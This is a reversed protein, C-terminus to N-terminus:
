GELGAGNELDDVQKGVGHGTPDSEDGHETDRVAM